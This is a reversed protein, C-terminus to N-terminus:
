LDLKDDSLMPSSRSDNENASEVRYNGAPSVVMSVNYSVPVETVKVPKYPKVEQFPSFASMGLFTMAPNGIVVEFFDTGAFPGEKASKVVTCLDKKFYAESVWMM